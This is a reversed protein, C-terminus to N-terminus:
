EAAGEEEPALSLGDVYQKAFDSLIDESAGERGPHISVSSVRYTEVLKPLYQPDLDGVYRCSVSALVNSADEIVVTLATKTWEPRKNIYITMESMTIRVKMIYM